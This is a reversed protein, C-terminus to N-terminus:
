EQLREIEVLVKGMKAIADVGVHPMSGHAAVGRTEIDIWAFEKHAVAINLQTPEAIIAADAKFMKVLSETGISAYEEDCVGALILDGKLRVGSDVIAKTAALMAALGGKM